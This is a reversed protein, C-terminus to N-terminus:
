YDDISPGFINKYYYDLELDSPYLQDSLDIKIEEDLKYKFCCGCFYFVNGSKSCVDEVLFGNNCFKCNKNVITM